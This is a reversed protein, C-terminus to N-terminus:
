TQGASCPRSWTIAVIRNYRRYRRGLDLKCFGIQMPLFIAKLCQENFVNKTHYSLNQKCNTRSYLRWQWPGSEISITFRSAIWDLLKMRMQLVTWKIFRKWKGKSENAENPWKVWDISYTFSSFLNVCIFHFKKNSTKYWKAVFSDNSNTETFKFYKFIERSQRM